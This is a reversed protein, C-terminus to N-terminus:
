IQKIEFANTKLLRSLSTTKLTTTRPGVGESQHEFEKNRLQESM